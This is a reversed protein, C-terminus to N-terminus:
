AAKLAEIDLKNMQLMAAMVWQAKAADSGSILKM